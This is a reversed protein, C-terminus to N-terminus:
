MWVLSLLDFTATLLGGSVYVQKQAWKFQTEVDGAEISGRLGIQVMHRPDVLGDEIARRFVTGNAYKEGSLTDNLDPHADVQVLGVAGHKKKIARLIPYSLSHDGGVALPICNAEMIRVYYDTITAMSRELNYPIIPIDGIDAVQLSEFPLAGRDNMYRILVSENRIARPGHRAGSRYNCGTDMPIGVFCADLGEPQGEQVPLRFLSAIGGSRTLENGSKPHNFTKSTFNVKHINVQLRLRALKVFGRGAGLCATM